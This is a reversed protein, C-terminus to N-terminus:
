YGQHPHGNDSPWNPQMLHWQEPAARILTELEDALAQTVRQVDARLKGRREAEVPPRCVAHTGKPRQYVATPLLVAGTRLALTAPGAPLMTREGFFEVEVGAGGVLRDSLLCVVHGDRIAALLAGGISPSELSLVHMGLKERFSAFWDFLEPPELPEVVATVELHQVATLWFGAWEWSGLHPLVLIPGTGSEVATVINDFGEQTFGADIAAVDLSPLRLSEAYYRGYSAFTEAVARDLANAGIDGYVRRLNREVQARRPSSRRAMLRASREAVSDTVAAPLVRSLASGARFAAVTGDM